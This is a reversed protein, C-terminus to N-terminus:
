VVSKRDTHPLRVTTCDTDDGNLIAENFNETFKWDNNLCIM